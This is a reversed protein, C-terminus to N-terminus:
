ETRTGLHTEIKAISLPGVSTRRQIRGGYARLCQRLLTHCAGLEDDLRIADSLERNFKPLAAAAEDVHYQWRSPDEDRLILSPDQLGDLNKLPENDGQPIMDRLRQIPGRYGDMNQNAHRSRLAKFRRELRASDEGSKM